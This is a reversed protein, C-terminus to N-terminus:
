KFQEKLKYKEITAKLVRIYNPDEAYSASLYEFYEQESKISSLYRSQYFAYDYVSEKWSEYYAHNNQTGDATTVRQKAEKMGFLNNNEVFINSKWHGTEVISQAMPIWAFKINLGKMMTVLKQSSFSDSKKILVVKEYETLGNIAKDIGLRYSYFSTLSIALAGLAGAKIYSKLKLSKFVLQNKDYKYLM